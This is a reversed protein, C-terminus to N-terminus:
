KQRVASAQSNTFAFIVGRLVPKFLRGRIGGRWRDSHKAAEQGEKRGYPWGTTIGPWMERGRLRWSGM